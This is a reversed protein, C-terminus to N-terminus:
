DSGAGGGVQADDDSRATKSVASLDVPDGSTDNTRLVLAREKTYRVVSVSAPDVVIRQFEDLPTALAHALVAKLVDGHSVAVWIAGPGHEAEVSADIRQVAAVARTQMQAMSEAPYDVGDPFTVSSPRQQVDKWLPEASLEKLSRGTWAGYRAEGLDEETHLGPDDRGELVTRATELCRQLPSSHLAVLPTGSLRSAVRSAQERGREDLGIGPTWGALIGDVNAQTRGHRVLLVIAM